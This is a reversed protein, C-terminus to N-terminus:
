LTKKGRDRIEDLQQQLQKVLDPHQAAVNSKEGPDSTLRYLQPQPDYGLETNTNVNMKPGNAPEIYKWEGNTIGLGKRGAGLGGQEILLARGRRDKGLLADLANETDPADTRKITQGTLAALSAMFDIQSILADSVGPKVQAPWRVLMPVRTGGEFVGGKGGRLEGTPQHTGLKEVAEDQYGDDVVAGNDSSLIVLTNKTLGLRDLTKLVEGVSYDFELLADGRPGMGSKGVFRANPMRPVHIDHTAFYLFFPAKQNNEIFQVAKQTFTDAMDEDVWRAAKGGTMWGIRSVGNVITMDHGHSPKMKLLDPNEKGTPESGIKQSYSVQIPDTPDLNVVRRNEVYVTPVRDGTAAMVFSYTFGVDLPTNTLEKNWQPGESGGLGLHWKGVVGTQYGAAKLVGPLTQRGPKILAPADGPLIGTGPQRWAYEGTMMSYRSPTCTASTTHGRRHRVGERAIRDAHPTKIRKNGYCSLDGFGIDDAYILVINPRETRASPQALLVTSTGSAILCLILLRNFSSRTKHAFLSTM